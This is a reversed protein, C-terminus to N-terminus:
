VDYSININSAAPARSFIAVWNWSQCRSALSGAELLKM